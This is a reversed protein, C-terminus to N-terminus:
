QQDLNRLVTLALWPDTQPNRILIRGGHGTLTFNAFDADVFSVLYNLDVSSVYSYNFAYVWPRAQTVPNCIQEAVGFVNRSDPYSGELHQNALFLKNALRVGTLVDEATTPTPCLWKLWGPLINCVADGFTAGLALSSDSMIAMSYNNDYYLRLYTKGAPNTITMCEGFNISPPCASYDFYLGVNPPMPYSMWFSQELFNMFDNHDAAVLPQNLTVGIIRQRIINGNLLKNLNLVCFANISGPQYLVNNLVENYPGCMLQYTDTSGVLSSLKMALMKTRTIWNGKNCLYDGRYQTDNICIPPVGVQYLCQNPLFCYGEQCGEFTKRIDGGTLWQGQSCRYVSGSVTYQDKGEARCTGTSPNWCTNAPCCSERSASPLNFFAFLDDPVISRSFIQTTQNWRGSSDCYYQETGTDIRSCREQAQILPAGTRLSSSSGLDPWGEINQLCSFNLRGGVLNCLGPTEGTFNSNNFGCGKFVGDQVFVSDYTASRYFLKANNKQVGGRFCAGVASGPDNYSENVRVGNVLVNRDDDESCCYTGTFNQGAAQCADQFAASDLNFAWTGSSLCYIRRGGSRIDEGAVYRTGGSGILSSTIGVDDCGALGAGCCVGIQARYSALNQGAIPAPTHCMYEHGNVSGMVTGNGNVYDLAYLGTEENDVQNSIGQACFLGIYDGPGGVGTLALSLPLGNLNFTSVNTMGPCPIFADNQIFIGGGLGGPRKWSSFPAPCYAYNSQGAISSLGQFAIGGSYENTNIIGLFGYANKAASAPNNVSCVLYGKVYASVNDINCSYSANGSVGAALYYGSPCSYQWSGTPQMAPGNTGPSLCSGKIDNTLKSVYSSYKDEDVCNIFENYLVVVPYTYSSNCKTKFVM